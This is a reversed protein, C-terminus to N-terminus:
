REVGLWLLPTGNDDKETALYDCILGYLGSEVSQATVPQAYSESYGDNSFGSLPATTVAQTPDADFLANVLEVMCRQVAEPVEAMKRVRNQTYRDIKKEALYELRSFAPSDANGGWKSYTEFDLYM